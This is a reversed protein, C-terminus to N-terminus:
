DRDNSGINLAPRHAGVGEAMHNELCPPAIHSRPPGADLAAQSTADELVEQVRDCLWSGVYGAHISAVKALEPPVAHAEFQEFLKGWISRPGQAPYAHYGCMLFNVKGPYYRPSYANLAAIGGDFVVKIAEPLYNPATLFTQNGTIRAAAKRLLLRVRSSVYAAVDRGKLESLAALTERIRRTVFYDLRLHVPWHRPHPFTDLFALLGITEGREMLRRALEVAVLGGFCFGAIFYPGHPQVETIADIYYDVMADIRDYPTNRGDFGKAQLGYIQQRGPFAKAIPMLQMTSGSMPHVLFIPQAGSGPRLSVVPSDGSVPTQRGLIAAMGAVTPSDFIGTLPFNRGTSQELQLSLRIMALSDGGLDFFNDHIGVRDLRLCECWFGAIQQELATRPAVFSEGGDLRLQDDPLKLANRDVKGNPTLPFSELPVLAAPMMYPALKGRLMERIAAVKLPEGDSATMYAILRKEGDVETQAVVVADAVAPHQRLVAEIEGLEIRYGRIKVQDDLRGLFELRGDPLYRVRDGTRYMRAAAASSFPDAIFKEDTLEPRNLYGRAVGDGGIYLEGAVGTPLPQGFRDLVYFTTNAIPLGLLVPQGSEIQAVSSWVTTETPGYMNWLSACRPLLESALEAPWAEGGCLIKLRQSGQWGAELLLRWTAPTAQMITAGSQQMLSGLRFGDAAVDAAAITVQAGVILPLFLELGAIDFSLSTVALLRDQATIGPEHQMGSLFNVLARHPVQVGKPRGTSGSTYLVYALDGANGPRQKTLNVSSTPQKPLADLYLVSANGSQLRDQLSQQTLLVRPSADDLIFALRDHPYSPDLPLYAGGAKLIGLLGVIMALSREVCLAVVQDPGVGLGTLHQAIRDAQENLERYTLQQQEFVVAIRDPTQRAQDEFLDQVQRDRPYAAQTQNWDVLIQRAEAPPLIDLRGVEADPDNLAALLRLFRDKLQELSAADYLTPNADLQIRWTGHESQDYVVHINLDDAPGSPVPWTRGSAGAFGSAYDFPRISISERIIPRDIRRLDRRLDAINYRQHRIAARTQRRVASALDAVRMMPEIHLRLPVVNTMMAPTGRSGPGIRGTMIQGLVIDEAETLRHVLLAASLTAVQPYTLEIRRAFEQLQRVTALPVDTNLQLFQSQAPASRMSLTRPEPCDAMLDLWYQRDSNFQPSVRYAADAEVVAALSGFRKSEPTTGNVLATYVEAVRQAILSGGYTDMALHHVRLYWLFDAPGAKFLRFAFFPGCCLDVPQTLDDRILAEAAAIPDSEASVDTYSVQGDPPAVIQQRPIDDTEVFQVCLAETEGVVRRLAAQFLDPDIPGAIRIYEAINYGSLSAGAKLAYWIGLQAASLPLDPTM